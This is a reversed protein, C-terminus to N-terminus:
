KESIVGNTTVQIPSSIHSHKLMWKRKAEEDLKQSPSLIVPSSNEENKVKVLPASYKRSM